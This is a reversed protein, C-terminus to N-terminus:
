AMTRPYELYQPSAILPLIIAIEETFTDVTLQTPSNMRAHADEMLHLMCIGAAEAVEQLSDLPALTFRCPVNIYVGMSPNSLVAQRNATPVLTPIADDRGGAHSRVQRPHARGRPIFSLYLSRIIPKPLKASFLYRPPLRPSLVKSQIHRPHQPIPHDVGLVDLSEQELPRMFLSWPLLWFIFFASKRLCDCLWSPRFGRLSTVMFPRVTSRANEKMQSREEPGETM